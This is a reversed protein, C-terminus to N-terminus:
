LLAADAQDAAAGHLDPILAASLVGMGPLDIVGDLPNAVLVLKGDTAAIGLVEQGVAFGFLASATENEAALERAQAYGVGRESQRLCVARATEADSGTRLAGQGREVHLVVIPERGMQGQVRAQSPIRS